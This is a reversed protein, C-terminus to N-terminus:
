FSGWKTKCTVKMHLTKLDHMENLRLLKWSQIIEIKQLGLNQPYLM